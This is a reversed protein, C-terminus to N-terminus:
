YLKVTESGGLANKVVTNTPKLRAKWNLNNLDSLGGQIRTVVSKSTKGVPSQVEESRLNLTRILDIFYTALAKWQSRPIRGAPSNILSSAVPPTAINRLEFVPGTPTFLKGRVEEPDIVEAPRKTFGSFESTVGDTSGGFINDLFKQCSIDWKTGSASRTESPDNFLAKAGARNSKALLEQKLKSVDKEIAGKELPNLDRYIHALDTRSLLAVINKNLPKSSDSDHFYRGMRLYQLVLVLFGRTTVGSSTLGLHKMESGWGMAAMVAKADKAAQAAEQRVRTGEGYQIDSHHKTVFHSQYELSKFFAGIQALELGFTAQFSADTTQAGQNKNGLYIKGKPANSHATLKGGTNLFLRRKPTLINNEIADALEKADEIAELIKAKGAETEPPYHKTVIEVVSAYHRPTGGSLAEDAPAVTDLSANEDVVIGLHDGYLAIPTKEPIGVGDNDILVAFEIEFGM